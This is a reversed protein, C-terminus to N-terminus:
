YAVLHSRDSRPTISDLLRVTARFVKVSAKRGIQDNLATSPFDTQIGIVLRPRTLFCILTWSFAVAQQRNSESYFTIYAKAILYHHDGSSSPSFLSADVLQTNGSKYVDDLFNQIRSATNEWHLNPSPASGAFPYCGTVLRRTARTGSM